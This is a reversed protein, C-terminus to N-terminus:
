RGFMVSQREGKENKKRSMKLKRRKKRDCLKKRKCKEVEKM